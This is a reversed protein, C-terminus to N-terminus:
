IGAQGDTAETRLPSVEDAKENVRVHIQSGAEARGAVLSPKSLDFLSSPTHPLTVVMMLLVPLETHSPQLSVTLSQTTTRDASHRKM